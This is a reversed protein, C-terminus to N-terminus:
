SRAKGWSYWSRKVRMKNKALVMLIRSHNVPVCTLRTNVERSQMSRKGIVTGGCGDRLGLHDAAFIANLAHRSLQHTL